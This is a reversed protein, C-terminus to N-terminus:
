LTSNGYGETNNGKALAAGSVAISTQNVMTTAACEIKQASTSPGIKFNASRLYETAISAGQMDIATVKINGDTIPKNGTNNLIIPNNTPTQNLATMVINDWALSLPAMVMSPTSALTFTTNKTDAILGTTDNLSINVTWDGAGDWYWMRITCSYNAATLNINEM